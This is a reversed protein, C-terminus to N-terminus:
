FPDNDEIEIEQASIRTMGHIDHVIYSNSCGVEVKIKSVTIYNNEQLKKITRSVTATSQRSGKAIDSVNEYYARSKTKFFMFRNLMFAYVVVDAVTAWEKDLMELPLRVYKLQEQPNQKIM